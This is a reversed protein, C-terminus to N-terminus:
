TGCDFVVFNEPKYGRYYKLFADTVFVTKQERSYLNKYDMIPTTSLMNKLLQGTNMVGDERSITLVHM